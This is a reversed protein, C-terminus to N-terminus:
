KRTVHWSFVYRIQISEPGGNPLAPLPSAAKLAALASEEVAQSGSEEIIKEDEIKGNQKVTFTVVVIRDEFGKVPQWKRGICKKAKEVYDLLEEESCVKEDLDEPTRGNIINPSAALVKLTLDTGICFASTTIFAVAIGKILFHKLLCNPNLIRYIMLKKVEVL